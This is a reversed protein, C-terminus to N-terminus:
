IGAAARLEAKASESLASFSRIEEAIQKEAKKDVEEFIDTVDGTKVVGNIVDKKGENLVEEEKESASENVSDKIVRPIFTKFAEQLNKTEVTRLVAEMVERQRGSLPSLVENMKQARELAAIQNQSEELAVLAENREKEAEALKSQLTDESEEAVFTKFEDAFAEFLKRGFSNQLNTEIDAKLEALEEALRLEIVGDALTAMEALEAELKEKLEYKAEVLNEAYEAELDRFRALDERLENLEEELAEQVQTDLAEILADREKQYQEVLKAETEIRAEAIAVQKAEEIMNQLAETIVAKSDDSLANESLLKNLIENM